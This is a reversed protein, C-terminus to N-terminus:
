NLSPHQWRIIRRLRRGENASIVGPIIWLLWSQKFFSSDSDLCDLKMIVMLRDCRRVTVEVRLWRKEYLCIHTSLQQFHISTIEDSARLARLVILFSLSIALTFVILISSFADSMWLAALAAGHLATAAIANIKTKRPRFRLLM